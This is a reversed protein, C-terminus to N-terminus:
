SGSSEFSIWIKLKASYIEAISARRTTHTEWRQTHDNTLCLNIDFIFLFFFFFFLLKFLTKRIIESPNINIPQKMLVLPLDYEMKNFSFLPRIFFFFIFLYSLFLKYGIYVDIRKNIENVHHIKKINRERVNIHTILRAGRNANLQRLISYRNSWFIERKKGFIFFFFM